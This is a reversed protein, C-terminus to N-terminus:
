VHLHLLVVRSIMPLLLTTTHRNALFFVFTLKRLRSKISPAGAIRLMKAQVCCSSMPLGFRQSILSPANSTVSRVGDNQSFILIGLGGTLTSERLLISKHSKHFLEPM